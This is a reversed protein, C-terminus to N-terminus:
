SKEKDQHWIKPRIYIRMAVIVEANSSGAEQCKACSSVTRAALSVLLDFPTPTAQISLKQELNGFKSVM